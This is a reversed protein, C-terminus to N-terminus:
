EEEDKGEPEEDESELEWGGEIKDLQDYLEQKKEYQEYLYRLKKYIERVEPFEGALEQFDPDTELEYIEECLDREIEYPNKNEHYAIYLDTMDSYIQKVEPFDDLYKRFKESKMLSQMKGVLEQEMQELQKNEIEILKNVQRYHTDSLSEIKRLKDEETYEFLKLLYHIIFPSAFVLGVLWWVYQLDTECLLFFYYYLYLIVSLAVMISTFLWFKRKQSFKEKIIDLDRVDDDDRKDDIEVLRHWTYAGRALISLLVIMLFPFADNSMPNFDKKCQLVPFTPAPEEEQPCKKDCPGGCDVGAEGCTKMNDNCFISKNQCTLRRCVNNVCYDTVCDENVNCARGVGCPECPGGCDVDTERGNQIGDFCTPLYECTEVTRPKEETTGCHSQDTCNRMRTGNITCKSWNGCAWNEVCTPQEQFAAAGGGGGGAGGGGEGGGGGGGGGGTGNGGTGNSTCDEPCSEADEFNRSCIDDGCVPVPSSINVRVIKGEEYTVNRWSIADDNNIRFKLQEGSEPGEDTPTEPDDGQCAMLGYRGEQQVEFKGCVTDNQDLVYITDASTANVQNDFANGYLVTPAPPIAAAIGALLLLTCIWVSLKGQM